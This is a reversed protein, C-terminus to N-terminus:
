NLIDINLHSPCGDFILRAKRESIVSVNIKKLWTNLVRHYHKIIMEGDNSGCANSYLFDPFGGIRPWQDKDVVLVPGQFFLM